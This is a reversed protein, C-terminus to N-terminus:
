IFICNFIFITLDLFSTFGRSFFLLIQPNRLALFSWLYM